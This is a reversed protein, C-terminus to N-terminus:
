TDKKSDNSEEEYFRKRNINLINLVRRIAHICMINLEQEDKTVCMRCINGRLMDDETQIKKYDEETQKRM